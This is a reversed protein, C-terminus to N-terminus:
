PAVPPEPALGPADGPPEAPAELCPGADERPVDLCPRTDDACGDDCGVTAALGLASLVRASPGQPPPSM